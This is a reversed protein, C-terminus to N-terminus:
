RVNQACHKDPNSEDLRYREKLENFRNYCRREHQIRGVVIGPAIGLSRAFAVIDKSTRLSSLERARTPPILFNRAFRNAQEERRDEEQGSDIFVEKKPDNLVHGAEHFFAFWLHDTSKGRLSLQILAKTPTLWRAAGYAPCGRFGAVFVVAVGAAACHTVMQPQFKEAPTTTLSRIQDLANRFRVREFPRTAMTQAKLEGLRLWAATPGPRTAFCPSKRFSAQPHLWLNKWAESNSVGFFRLTAQLLSPKNPQKEIAGRRILERTPIIKLWTLDAELRRRDEIRALQERYNSELNNWMRAPMGTVRELLVATDPTIPAKGKVILNITKPTLGTRIALEKQDMGLADITEQLTAGPAVAYDPEFGYRKTTRRGVNQEM